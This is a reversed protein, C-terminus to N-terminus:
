WPLNQNKRTVDSTKQNKFTTLKFSQCLLKLIVIPIDTKSFFWTLSLFVVIYTDIAIFNIVKQEFDLYHWSALRGLWVLGLSSYSLRALYDLSILNRMENLVLAHWSLLAFCILTLCLLALSCDVSYAFLCLLVFYFFRMYTLFSIAYLFCLLSLLALFSRIYAQMYAFLSAFCIFYILNLWNHKTTKFAAQEHYDYNKTAWLVKLKILM